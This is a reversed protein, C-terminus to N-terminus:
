SRQLALTEALAQAVTDVNALTAGYGMLGIRWIQGALPGLGAGIEIQHRERLHQRVLAENVGGPVRVTNLSWLRDPEAPLLSLGSTALTAVLARHVREHRQWRADLTEDEVEGLAAHLAYVLPASITHHYKRRLWYDELLALDLYFSRCAVRRAIARRSFTVPALGSPAGLGKQSCSYCADVGWAGVELPVAGLTTVADVIVLADQEHALRAIEQVPNRVGTSTEGHVVAVLDFRGAAFAHAVAAPDVARGWEAELRQVEAGYRSLVNALRDGFYGTVIALARRGPATLNAVVAELGSTGTGSIALTVGDDAARFVRGLRLRIDDLVAMLEPDLHSRPSAGLAAM